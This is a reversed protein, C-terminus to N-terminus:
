FITTTSLSKNLLTLIICKARTINITTETESAILSRLHFFDKYIHEVTNKVM